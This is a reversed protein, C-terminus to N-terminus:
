GLSCEADLKQFAGDGAWEECRYFLGAGQVLGARHFPLPTADVYKVNILCSKLYASYKSKVRNAEVVFRLARAIPFIGITWPRSPCVPSGLPLRWWSLWGPGRRCPLKM